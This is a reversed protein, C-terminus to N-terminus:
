ELATGLARYEELLFQAADPALDGPVYTVSRLTGTFPFPGRRQYLEWSVPSRRDIGVDIGEFPIYGTLQPLGEAKAVPSGDCSLTVDWVGGGPAHLEVSVQRSAGELPVPPLAHIDSTHNLLFHLQGDEVYLVYGSEVGGHAFLVGEDGPQHDWDVVVTFSRGAIMRSSRYRDMTPTGPLFTVPESLVDEWEPRILMHMGDGEYLPFVRNRWAADEWAAALEAVREPHAEALDTIQTPDAEIDFLQWREESFPTAPIRYTIAEWGDRYFARNGVCEYYQENHDSSADPDDLTATFPVGDLERAPQGHRQEPRQLGILDVLTPLVDTVHVYARRVISGHQDIRDPWSMVMAVQHGGRFTTTKYLRFPTNCAMAWGRPYHPWTSASGIEDFMELDKALTAPDQVTKGPEATAGRRYNSGGQANGERSAGNDSTVIFITNDLEGLAELTAMLRGVSQDVNDVMGAYVEMYRAFLRQVEPSLDDWPQVDENQESNRPPLQTGEPVLGLEVQRALREERLRDWGIDYRGRYRAIDEPKAHLPAHVAGHAFYMFFPKRPNAGKVGKIMREARDTLNDTLYYGDPYDDVDVVSNGDYLRHPQHLNTMPDMFGFYEDFGRQLPWSGRDGAESLDSDKSLHWKGLMFTSYGNERFVEALTPQDRPMESVYGPFGPDVNAVFGMGAAHSNLGTLLAARTPSCLPTVHFNAYRLGRGALRDINPTRIESGYCGLDAFGLDDVLVIVVNPAGEPPTPRAPWSPTSSRFTRGVHGDFGGYASQYESPIGNTPQSM